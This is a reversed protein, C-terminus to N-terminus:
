WQGLSGNLNAFAHAYDTDKARSVVEAAKNKVTSNERYVELRRYLLLM